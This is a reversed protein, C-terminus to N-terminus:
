VLNIRDDVRRRATRERDKRISSGPKSTLTQRQTMRPDIGLSQKGQVGDKKWKVGVDGESIGGFASMLLAPQSCLSNGIRQLVHADESRGDYNVEEGIVEWLGQPCGM